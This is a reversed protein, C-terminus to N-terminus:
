ALKVGYPEASTREANPSQNVTVVRWAEAGDGAIHDLRTLSLNDVSFALAAAPALDLAVALAARITGGHAVAVIDQGAHSATHRAIAQAVRAVVTAFSEGEPPAHDAPALWFGPWASFRRHIEARKQGQWAGFSQEALARDERPAPAPLGAAQIAAATEKTRMLHSTLWVAGQPLRRALGEFAPRDSCDASLDLQGYICGRDDMVPAHRVWWWRTATSQARSTVPGSQVMAGNM